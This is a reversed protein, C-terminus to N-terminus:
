LIQISPFLKYFMRFLGQVVSLLSGQPLGHLLNGATFFELVPDLHEPGIFSGIEIIEERIFIEDVLPDICKIEQIVGPNVLHVRGAM